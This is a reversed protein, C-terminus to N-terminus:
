TVIFQGNMVTPHVDCRFYYTGPTAPATFIYTINQGGTIIEGSFIKTTASPSTYVAFNHPIGTVQASGAPEQNQFHVIIRAGAPVSVTSTNFAMKRAVLDISVDPGPKVPTIVTGPASTVVPSPTNIPTNGAPVPSITTVPNQSPAYGAPSSTCGALLTSFLTILILIVILHRANM